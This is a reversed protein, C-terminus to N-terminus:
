GEWEFAHKQSQSVESELNGDLGQIVVVNWEYNGGGSLNNLNLRRSTEKMWGFPAQYGSEGVKYFRIEFHWNEPLEGSYMWSFMQESDGQSIYANSEPSVLTIQGQTPLIQEQVINSNVEGSIPLSNNTGLNSNNPEFEQPVDDWSFVRYSLNDPDGGMEGLHQKVTQVWGSTNDGGTWKPAIEDVTDLDPFYNNSQAINWNASRIGENWDEYEICVRTGDTEFLTIGWANYIEWSNVGLCEKTAFMSEHAAIAVIFRPDVGRDKGVTVLESGLGVMKSDPQYRRIHNDIITAMVEEETQPLEDPDPEEPPKEDEESSDDGFWNGISDFLNTIWEQASNIKEEASTTFSDFWGTVSNVQNSFWESIPATLEDWLNEAIEDPEPPQLNPDNSCAPTYITLLFLILCILRSRRM